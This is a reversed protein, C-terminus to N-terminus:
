ASPMRYFQILNNVAEQSVPLSKDFRYRNIKDKLAADLDRKLTQITKALENKSVRRVTSDGETVESWDYASAGTYRRIQLGYYSSLYIDKFISKEAESLDVSLENAVITISLGLATNLDGIHTRLWIEIAAADPSSPSELDAYIEGAIDSLAM